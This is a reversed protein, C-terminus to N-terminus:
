RLSLYELMDCCLVVCSMTIGREAGIRPFSPLKIESTGKGLSVSIAIARHPDFMLGATQPSSASCHFGSRNKCGRGSATVSARMGPTYELKNTEVIVNRTKNLKGMHGKCSSRGQHHDHMCTPQMGRIGGDCYSIYHHLPKM